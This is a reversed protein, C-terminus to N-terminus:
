CVFLIILFIIDCFDMSVNCGVIDVRLRANALHQLIQPNSWFVHRARVMAADWGSIGIEPDTQVLHSRQVPIVDDMDDIIVYHSVDAGNMKLWGKIEYGRIYLHDIGTDYIDANMLM